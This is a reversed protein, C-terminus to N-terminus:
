SSAIDDEERIRSHKSGYIFYIMLGVALWIGFRFWNTAGLQSM